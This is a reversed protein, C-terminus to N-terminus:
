LRIRGRSCVTPEVVWSSWRLTQGAKWAQVPCNAKSHHYPYVSTPFM